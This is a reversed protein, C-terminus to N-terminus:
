TAKGSLERTAIKYTTTSTSVKTVRNQITPHYQRCSNCGVLEPTEGSKDAIRVTGGTIVDIAVVLVTMISDYVVDVIVIAHRFLRALGLSVASIHSCPNSLLPILQCNLACKIDWRLLIFSLSSSALGGTNMRQTPSGGLSYAWCISNLIQNTLCGTNFSITPKDDYVSMLPTSLM